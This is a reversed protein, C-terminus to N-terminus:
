FKWLYVFVEVIICLIEVFRLLNVLVEVFVCFGGCHCVFDRCVEVIESFADGLSEFGGCICLFRWLSVFDGCVEVLGSFVEVFVCFGGCHCLIEM